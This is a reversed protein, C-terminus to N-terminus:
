RPRRRRCLAIIVSWAMSWNVLAAPDQWALISMGSSVIEAGLFRRLLYGKATVAVIQIRDLFIVIPTRISSIAERTHNMFIAPRETNHSKPKGLRLLYIRHASIISLVM